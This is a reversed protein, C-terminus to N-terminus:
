FFASCNGVGCVNVCIAELIATVSEAREEKLDDYTSSVFCQYKRKSTKENNKQM